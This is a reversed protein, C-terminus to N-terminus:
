YMSKKSYKTDNFILSKGDPYMTIGLGNKLILVYNDNPDKQATYDYEKSEKNIFIRLWDKEVKIYDNGNFFVGTPVIVNASTESRSKNRIKYESSSAISSGIGLVLACVIVLLKKM